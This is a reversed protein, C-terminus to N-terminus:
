APVFDALLLGDSALSVPDLIRAFPIIGASVLRARLRDAYQHAFMEKEVAPREHWPRNNGANYDVHHGLEHLLTRYLQTARASELSAAIVHHRRTTRINHGDLRLRELEAQGDPTLSKRWRVPQALTQAELIIAPGRYAGIEVFFVARGWVSNLVEQKRKPQRLVILELHSLDAAPLQGLLYAIDDVTCAHCADRRTREVIFTFDQGQVRRTVAKYCTLEEWYVTPVHVSNPIVLKNNDGFGQNATGINRNRRTPNWGSKM